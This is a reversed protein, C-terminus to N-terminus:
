PKPLPTKEPTGPDPSTVDSYTGDVTEGSEQGHGHGNRGMGPGMGGSMHVTQLHVRAALYKYLAGRVPPILLAFGIADTFFGPTLLLVGAVLIMAGEALLRGPNEGAGLRSQVDRLAAVGQQRLMVSGVLATLVVIGITPWTGIAGGVEIFLAIEIIPVAVLLLFLRM